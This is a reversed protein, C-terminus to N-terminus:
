SNSWCESHVIDRGCAALHHYMTIICLVAILATTCILHYITLCYTCWQMVGVVVIM